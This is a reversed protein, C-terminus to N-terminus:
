SQGHTEGKEAELQRQIYSRMNECRERYTCQVWTEPNGNEDHRFLFKTCEPEFDKCCHCYEEVMLSIM